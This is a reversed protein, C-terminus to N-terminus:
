GMSRTKLVRGEGLHYAASISPYTVGDTKLVRGEGLHYAEIRYPRRSAITKLM